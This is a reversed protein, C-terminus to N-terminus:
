ARFFPKGETFCQKHNQSRIPPTPSRDSGPLGASIESTEEGRGDQGREATARRFRLIYAPRLCLAPGTTLVEQPMEWEIPRTAAPIDPLEGVNSSEGGVGPHLM